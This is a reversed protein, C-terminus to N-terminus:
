FSQFAITEIRNLGYEKVLAMAKTEADYNLFREPQHADAGFIVTNGEEALLEFLEKCPYHKNKHIGLLNIELPLNCSKAELCIRHLQAKLLKRDGLFLICDPHAVYSFTGTQMGQIIQDCYHELIKPDYIENRTRQGTPSDLFHQGLLLYEVGQDRLVSCLEKHTEPYYEAEIGLHLEIDKKYKEKLEKVNGAYQILAERDLHPKETTGPHMLYTCHESFGLIEVGGEIAAKVYEEETGKGHGCRVTHTHYNVRM